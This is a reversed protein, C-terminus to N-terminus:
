SVLQFAFEASVPAKANSGIHIENQDAGVFFVAFIRFEDNIFLSLLRASGKGGQCLSRANKWETQFLRGCRGLRGMEGRQASFLWTEGSRSSM